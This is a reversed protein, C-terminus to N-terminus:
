YGWLAEWPLEDEEVKATLETNLCNRAYLSEEQTDKLVFRIVKLKRDTKVGQRHARGIAQAETALAYSKQGKVPECLIVHTAKTLNTGSATSEM